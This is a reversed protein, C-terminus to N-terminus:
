EPRDIKISNDYEFLEVHLEKNVQPAWSSQFDTKEWRVVEKTEPTLYVANQDALWMGGRQADPETKIHFSYNLLSRGDINKVGNCKANSMGNISAELFKAHAAKRGEPLQNPAKTWPGDASTGTWTDRDIVLAMPGDRVGSITRLPTQVINDFIRIKAGNVDFVTKESRYPRRNWSNLEGQFLAKIEALCEAENALTANGTFFTLCLGLTTLAISTKKIPM